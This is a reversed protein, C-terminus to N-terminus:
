KLIWSLIGSIASLIGACVVFAFFTNFHLSPIIFGAFHAGPYTFATISINTIFVTLLYLIFVNTLTSFVGLSLINLPISIFNLVPKLIMLMLTLAIGGVIATPIGGYLKLGSIFHPLIYLTFAYIATNRLLYRM